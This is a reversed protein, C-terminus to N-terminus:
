LRRKKKDNPLAVLNRDRLIRLAWSVLKPRCPKIPTSLRLGVVSKNLHRDLDYLWADLPAPIVSNCSATRQPKSIAFPPHYPTKALTARWKCRNVFNAVDRDIQEREPVGPQHWIHKPHTRALLWTIPWPINAAHVSMNRWDYSLVNEKFKSMRLLTAADGTNLDLMLSNSYRQASADPEARM